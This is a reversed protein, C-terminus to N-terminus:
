IPYYCFDKYNVTVGNTLNFYFRDWNDSLNVSNKSEGDVSVDVTFGKVALKVHHYDDDAYRFIPDLVSGKGSTGKRFNM